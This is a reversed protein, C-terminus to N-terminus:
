DEDPDNPGLRGRLAGLAAFPKLDADRLPTAGPETVVVEGLEAEPRRPFPPLALALAETMVAGLDIERPLAEITDDGPMEVEGAEPAPLDAVYRRIVDEEIRTTVPDLTVVCDQVVTAGLHGELRWDRAGEATIRGEFRLKRLAGLSLEAAIKERLGADPEIRFAHGAGSNLDAVRITRADSPLGTPAPSM